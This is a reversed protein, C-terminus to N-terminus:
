ILADAEDAPLECHEGEIKRGQSTAVKYHTILVRKWPAAGESQAADDVQTEDSREPKSRAM